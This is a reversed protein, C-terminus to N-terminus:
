RISCRRRRSAKGGRAGCGTPPSSICSRTACQRFVTAWTGPSSNRAHAHGAADLVRDRAWYHYDLLTELSQFNMQAVGPLAQRAPAKAFAPGLSDRRPRISGFAYLAVDSQYSRVRRVPAPCGRTRDRAARRRRTAERNALVLRDIEENGIRGVFREFLMPSDAGRRPQLVALRRAVVPERHKRVRSKGLQKAFREPHQAGSM